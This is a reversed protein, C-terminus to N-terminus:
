KLLNTPLHKAIFKTAIFKAGSDTPHGYDFTILNKDDIKYRCAIESGVDHCLGRILDVFDFDNDNKSEQLLIDNTEFIDGRLASTIVYDGMVKKKKSLAVPLTPSWQPVPGLIIVKKVGTDKIKKALKDYHYFQHDRAKIVVVVSPKIDKILKQSISNQYDCGKAFREDAMKVKVGDWNVSCGPTALQNYPVGEKLLDRIGVSIAAAHSDGLVFIGGSGKNAVCKDSVDLKGNNVLQWGAACPVWYDGGMDSDKFDKYASIWDQTDYQATYYRVRQVLTINGFVMLCVLTLPAYIKWSLSLSKGSEVFTYSLYGATISAAIGIVGVYM